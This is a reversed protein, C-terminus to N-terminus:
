GLQRHIPIEHDPRLSAIAVGERAQRGGRDRMEICDGAHDDAIGFPCLVGDLFRERAGPPVQRREAVGIAEVGPKAAEENVRADVLQPVGPTPDDLHLQGLEVM